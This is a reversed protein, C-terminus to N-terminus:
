SSHSSPSAMKDIHQLLMIAYNSITRAIGELTAITGQVGNIFFPIELATKLEPRLAWDEHAGLQDAWYIILDEHSLEVFGVGQVQFGCAILKLFDFISKEVIGVPPPRDFTLKPSYGYQNILKILLPTNAGKDHILIRLILAVSSLYDLNKLVFAKERFDKLLRINKRLAEVMENQNRPIKELPNM